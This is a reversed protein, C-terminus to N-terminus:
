EPASVSTVKGWINFDVDEGGYNQLKVEESRRRCEYIIHIYEGFAM